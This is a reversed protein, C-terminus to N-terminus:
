LSQRLYSGPDAPQGAHAWYSAVAPKRIHLPDRKLQRFLWGVPTFICFFLFGLLLRTMVWGIPFAIAMAVSFPLKVLAPRILGTIGVVLGMAVLIVALKSNASWQTVAVGCFLVLWIGSFERLQRSTVTRSHDSTEPDLM